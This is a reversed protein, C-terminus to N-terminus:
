HEAWAACRSLHLRSPSAASRSRHRWCCMAFRGAADQLLSIGGSKIADNPDTKFIQRLPMVGFVVGAFVSILLGMLILSPQPQIHFSLPYETPPHWNALGTLAIWALGCAFVGRLDFDCHGRCPDPPRHALPEVWPWASPLRARATQRARQSCASRPQRLRRAACYRGAGASWGSFCACSRRFIDGDPRSPDTQVYAKRGRESVAPCHPPSTDLEAQVQPMTVGDKIRVISYVHPDGRSELWDIGTWRHKMQWRFSFTWPM